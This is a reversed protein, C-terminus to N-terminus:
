DRGNKFRWRYGGAQNRKGNCAASINKYNAGTFNEAIRASGFEVEEGTKINTGIVPKCCRQTKGNYTNNYAKTCWELNYVHNDLKNENKHNICDFGNENPIWAEAVIRHVAATKNKSSNPNVLVVYAYGNKNNVVQVRFSNTIKSYITGDASVEYFDEYGVVPRFEIGALNM